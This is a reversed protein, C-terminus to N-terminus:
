IKAIEYEVTQFEHLVNMAMLDWRGIRDDTVACWRERRGDSCSGQAARPRQVGNALPACEWAARPQRAGECSNGRWEGSISVGLEGSARNLM